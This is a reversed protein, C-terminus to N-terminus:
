GLICVTGSKVTGNAYKTMVKLANAVEDIYFSVQSANLDTSTPTIANFATKKDWTTKIGEMLVGNNAVMMSWGCKEAGSTLSAGLLTLNAVEVTAGVSNNKLASIKDISNDWASNPSTKFRLPKGKLNIFEPTSLFTYCGIVTNGEVRNNDIDLCYVGYRPKAGSGRTNGIIHNNRIENGTFGDVEHIADYTNDTYISCDMITNETVINSYGNIVIGHGFIMGITNGMIKVRSSNCVIGGGKINKDVISSYLRGIITNGLVSAQGVGIVAGGGTYPQITIANDYPEMIFNENIKGTNLSGDYFKQCYDSHNDTINLGIAEPANNKICCAGDNAIVFGGLSHFRNDKIEYGRCELSTGGTVNNIELGIFCNSILNTTVKLNRGYTRVATKFKYFKNSILHADLDPNNTPRLFQMCTQTTEEGNYKGDSGWYDVKYSRFESGLINFFIGNPKTFLLKSTYYGFSNAQFTINDKGITVTDQFVYCSLDETSPFQIVSGSPSNALLANM